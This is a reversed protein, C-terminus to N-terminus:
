APIRRQRIREVPAPGSDPDRRPKPPDFAAHNATPEATMARLVLPYLSALQNAAAVPIIDPDIVLMATLRDDVPDVMFEATLPFNNSAFGFRAAIPGKDAADAGARPQFRTFNFLTDFPLDGGFRRGMAPLPFARHRIMSGEIARVQEVLDLWSGAGLGLTLPVTNVFLGLTAETDIVAPRAHTVVGTCVAASGTALSLIKAHAALLVTKRPAEIANSLERVAASLTDDLAIMITERRGQTVPDRSTRLAPCAVGRTWMDKWFAESERDQLARQEAAVFERYHPIAGDRHEGGVAQRCNIRYREILQAIFSAESWGDLIAHHLTIALVFRDRSRIPLVAFRMLPARSWDLPDRTEAAIYRDLVTQEADADVPDLARVTVPATRHVLQLPQKGADFTFSTRLIPHAVIVAAIADALADADYGLELAYCVVDQYQIEADGSSIGDSHFLLALQLQGAPYADEIDDPLARRDDADVLEFPQVAAPTDAPAAGTDRV